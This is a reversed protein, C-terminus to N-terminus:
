VFTLQQLQWKSQELRYKVKLYNPLTPRSGTTANKTKNQNNQNHHIKM